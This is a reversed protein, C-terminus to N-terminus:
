AILKQYIKILNDQPFGLFFLVFILAYCAQLKIYGNQRYKRASVLVNRPIVKFNEVKKIRRILDYEEMLVLSEKYGRLSDFLQRTIFLTQGGGRFIIWPFRTFFSNALLFKNNTDFRSRFCGAKYGNKVAEVIDRSFHVPPKSDAHVFYLIDGRAEFAGANMQCSRGCKQSLFVRAGGKEAEEITQDTSGGDIVIVDRVYADKMLHVVLSGIREAEQYTPIIISVSLNDTKSAGQVM